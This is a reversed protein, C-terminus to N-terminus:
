PQYLQINEPEFPDDEDDFWWQPPRRGKMVRDWDIQAALREAEQRTPADPRPQTSM